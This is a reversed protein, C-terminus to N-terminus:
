SATPRRTALHHYAEEAHHATRPRDEPPHEPNDAEGRGDGTMRGSAIALLELLAPRTLVLVLVTSDVTRIVIAPDVAAVALLDAVGDEVLVTVPGHTTVIGVAPDRAAAALLDAVFFSVLVAVTANLALVLVTPYGTPIAVFGAGRGPLDICGVLVPVPQRAAVVGIAPDHVTPALLAALCEGVLVRVAGGATEVVVARHVRITDRAEDVVRLRDEELM